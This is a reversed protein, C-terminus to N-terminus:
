VRDYEVDMLCVIKRGSIKEHISPPIMRLRFPCHVRESDEVARPYVSMRRSELRDFVIVWKKNAARNPVVVERFDAETLM